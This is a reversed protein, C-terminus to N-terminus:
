RTEGTCPVDDQRFFMLTTVGESGINLMAIDVGECGGDNRDRQYYVVLPESGSARWGARLMLSHYQELASLVQGSDITVCDAEPGRPGSEIPGCSADGVIAPVDLYGPLLLRPQPQDSRASGPIAAALAAALAAMMVVKMIM